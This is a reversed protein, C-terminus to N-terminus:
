KKVILGSIVASIRSATNWGSEGGSAIGFQKLFERNYVEQAPIQIKDAQCSSLTILSLVILPTPVPIRGIRKLNTLM